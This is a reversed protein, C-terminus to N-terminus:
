VLGQRLLAQRAFAYLNRLTADRHDRSALLAHNLQEIDEVLINMKSIASQSSAFVAPKQYGFALLESLQRRKDTMQVEQAAVFDAAEIATGFKERLEPGLRICGTETSLRESYLAFDRFMAKKDRAQQKEYISLMTCAHLRQEDLKEQERALQQLRDKEARPMDTVPQLLHEQTRRMDDIIDQLQITYLENEAQQHEWLQIQANRRVVRNMTQTFPLGSSM